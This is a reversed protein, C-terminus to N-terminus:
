SPSFPGHQHQNHKKRDFYNNCDLVAHMLGCHQLSTVGGDREFSGTQKNLKYKNLTIYVVKRSYVNLSHICVLARFSAKLVSGILRVFVQDSKKGSM